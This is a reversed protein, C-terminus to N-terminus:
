TRAESVVADLQGATVRSGAVLFLSLNSTVDYPIRQLLDVQDMPHKADIGGGPLQDRGGAVELANELLAFPCTQNCYLSQMLDSVARADQPHIMM